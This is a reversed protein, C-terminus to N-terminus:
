ADTEALDGTFANSASGGGGMHFITPSYSPLENEPLMELHCHVQFVHTGPGFSRTMIAQPRELIIFGTREPKLLICGLSRLPRLKCPLPM